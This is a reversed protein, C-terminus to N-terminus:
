LLRFQLFDYTSLPRVHLLQSSRQAAIRASSGRWRCNITDLYPSRHETRTHVRGDLSPNEVHKEPEIARQDIALFARSFAPVLQQICDRHDLGSGLRLM